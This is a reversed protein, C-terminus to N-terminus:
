DKILKRIFSREKLGIRRDASCLCLCFSVMATKIYEDTNEFSDVLEDAEDTLDKGRIQRITEAAEEYDLDLGTSEQFLAFEEEDLKGDAACAASVLLYFSPIGGDEDEIAPIIVGALDTLMELRKEDSLNEYERCLKDFEFM